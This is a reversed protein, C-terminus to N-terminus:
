VAKLFLRIVKFIKNMLHFLFRYNALAIVFAKSSFLFGSLVPFPRRESFCSFDSADGGWCVLCVSDVRVGIVVGGIINVVGGSVGFVDNCPLCM